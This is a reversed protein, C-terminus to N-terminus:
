YQICVDDDQNYYEIFMIIMNINTLPDYLIYMYIINGILNYHYLMDFNVLMLNQYVFIFASM